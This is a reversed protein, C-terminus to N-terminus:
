PRECLRVLVIWNSTPSARSLKASHLWVFPRSILTWAAHCVHLRRKLGLSELFGWAPKRDGAAARWFFAAVACQSQLLDICLEQLQLCCSLRGLRAYRVKLAQAPLRCGAGAVKVAHDHQMPADLEIRAVSATVYPSCPPLGRGSLQRPRPLRPQEVHLVINGM